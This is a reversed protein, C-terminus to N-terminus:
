EPTLVRSEAFKRVTSEVLLKRPIPVVVGLARRETPPLAYRSELRMLRPEEVAEFREPRVM